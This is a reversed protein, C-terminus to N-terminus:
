QQTSILFKVVTHRNKLQNIKLCWPIVVYSHIYRVIDNKYNQLQAM